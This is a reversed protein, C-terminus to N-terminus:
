SWHGARASSIRPAARTSSSSADGTVPEDTPPLDHILRALQARTRAAYALHLREEFEDAELRGESAALRLRTATADRERDSARVEEAM